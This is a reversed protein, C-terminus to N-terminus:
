DEKNSMNKMSIEIKSVLKRYTKLYEMGNNRRCLDLQWMYYDKDCIKKIDDARQVERKSVSLDKGFKIGVFSMLQKNMEIVKLHEEHSDICGRLKIDHKLAMTMYTKALEDLKLMEANVEL